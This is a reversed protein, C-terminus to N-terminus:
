LPCCRMRNKRTKVFRWFASPNSKAENQVRHVYERFTSSVFNEYESEVTQLLARNTATRNRFFRRRTKRLINRRHQLEANWWLQKYTKRPLSRRLPVHRSITDFVANYFSTISTNIDEGSLIQFWDLSNLENKVAEYDCRSFDFDFDMGEVACQLHHVPNRFDLRLVFPNHHRDPSLISYPAGILEAEHCDSVFALDLLRGNSNSVNCIQKLGSAILTETLTLEQESSANTPLYGEVEDDYLWELRSLNYDGVVIVTDCPTAINVIQNVCDSHAVFKDPDSNPRLYIGCIYVSKHALKVKVVVQELTESESLHVSLNTLTCKVAILTGGGRQLSSTSSSRDCRYINYNDALETNQVDSRLWTETIVIIDYDSSAAALFFENTKTRM